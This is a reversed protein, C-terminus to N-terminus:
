RGSNSTDQQKGVLLCPPPQLEVYIPLEKMNDSSQRKKLFPSAQWLTAVKTQEIGLSHVSLQSQDM